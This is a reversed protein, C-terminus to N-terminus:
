FCWTKVATCKYRGRRSCNVKIPHITVNRDIHRNLSKANGFTAIADAKLQNFQTNVDLIAAQRAKHENARFKTSTLSKCAANAMSPAALTVIMAGLGLVM